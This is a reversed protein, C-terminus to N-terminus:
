SGNRSLFGRATELFRLRAAGHDVIPVPYDLGQRASGPADWPRHIWKAPFEALEPLWRKVYIGTPDFREGQATPNFVRFWPQADVGCGASWQWGLNNNAWDGDVLWELYHAEGARYDQLLQKALFCAAVMRARNHVYGESLLQRAAADVVPYGTLGQTWAEWAGPDRLWPFGEFNRRFPHSLLAPELALLHHAFERWLLENLYCPVDEPFAASRSSVAHWLARISLTGFHLDSSLRSTGEEALLDRASRYGALGGELFASLREQGAAEGGRLLRPNPLLGLAGLSPIESEPVGEMPLLPLPPLARPAPLPRGLHVQRHFARAFPTFVHFMSGTGTKVSGPPVLTEGECLRLAIGEKELARGVRQDRLVGFPESWRHALVQDARWRVALEPVLDVSRGAVVVLRSGLEQIRAELARLSELLFQMRHPLRAARGAEFFFPDLIFLPIVEGEALAQQLPGHDELRLDKGRFWVISRM